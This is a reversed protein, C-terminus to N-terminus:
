GSIFELLQQSDDNGNLLSENLWYAAEDIEAQNSAELLLSSGLEYQAEPEGNRASRELLSLARDEDKACHRGQQYLSSLCLQAYGDNFKDGLELYYIANNYDNSNLYYQYLLEAINANDFASEKLTGLLEDSVSSGSLQDEIEDLSLNMNNNKM